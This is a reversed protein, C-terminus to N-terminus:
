SYFLTKKQSDIISAFICFENKLVHHVSRKRRKLSNERIVNVIRIKSPPLGFFGALNAILNEEFFDDVNVSPFGFSMLVVPATRIELMEEDGTISIFLLQEDRIQYNSAHGDGIQPMFEERYTPVKPMLSGDEMTEMNSPQVYTAEGTAQDIKYVDLRHILFGCPSGLTTM